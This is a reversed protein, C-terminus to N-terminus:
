WCFGGRYYVAPTNKDILVLLCFHRQKTPFSSSWQYQLLSLVLVIMMMVTMCRNTAVALCLLEVRRERDKPRRHKAFVVVACAGVVALINTPIVVVVLDYVVVPGRLLTTEM